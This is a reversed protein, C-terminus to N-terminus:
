FLRSYGATVLYNNLGTNPSRTGANSLHLWRASLVLDSSESLATRVGIGAQASFQFHGGIEEIKDNLNTLVFGPGIEVFPAFRRNSSFHYRYMLTLGAAYATKPDTALTLPVEWLFEQREDRFRGWRPIVQFLAVDTRGDFRSVPIQRGYGISIDRERLARRLRYPDEAPSATEFSASLPIEAQALRNASPEVEVDQSTVLTSAPSADEPQKATEDGNALAGSFSCAIALTWVAILTRSNTALDM